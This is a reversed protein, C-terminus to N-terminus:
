IVPVLWWLLLVCIHSIVIVNPANVYTITNNKLIWSAATLPTLAYRSQEAAPLQLWEDRTTVTTETNAIVELM